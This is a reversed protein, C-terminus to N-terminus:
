RTSVDDSTVREYIAEIKPTVVDWSFERARKRGATALKAALKPDHLVRSIASALAEDDAPPVLVGDVGDRIVERYGPIDSAVVPLGAALAEVLVYGFSEHGTAPAVFVDASAHYRPLEVNPVAGLMVIRGRVAPEAIDLADVGRGDGAVVFSLDDFESALRAFARVAVGFGKQPDLRSAWLLVRGDPLGTARGRRRSWRAVDMGNPVNDIDEGVIPAAFAAAAESVAVAADLRRAVTRLFPAAADLLKSRDHFAHFTAVVPAATALVSL